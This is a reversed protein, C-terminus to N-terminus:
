YKSIEKPLIPHKIKQKKHEYENYHIAARSRPQRDKNHKSPARTVNSQPTDDSIVVTPSGLFKRPECNKNYVNKELLFYSSFHLKRYM